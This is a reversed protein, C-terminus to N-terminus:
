PASRLGSVGVRLLTLLGAAALLLAFPHMPLAFRPYYHLPAQTILVYLPLLLVLLLRRPCLLALAGTGLIMLPLTAMALATELAAFVPRAVELAHGPVLMRGAVGGPDREEALSERPPAEIALLDAGGSGYNLMQGARGLATAVFWWPEARIVELSRRVRDHDRRIGDPSAWWSAYRPDGYQKAEWSAVQWDLSRAGFREGGSDAIGEWLVIGVNISVPVFARYIRLNRITVPAVLLTAVAAMGLAAGTVARRRPSLLVLGLALFPALLLFNPRLWTTIGLVLGAALVVGSSRWGSRFLLWLVLVGLTAGLSDPTILNSYYGLPASLAAMSGALLGLNRGLIRTAFLFLIVPLLSGLLNQALQIAFFGEGVLRYVAAIFLPYGPPRSVLGTDSPEPWVRPYLIGDGALHARAAEDYRAAMRTGPQEHSYMSPALDVAHLSRVAFAVLFLGAGALWCVTRSV